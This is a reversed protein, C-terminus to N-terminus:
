KRKRKKNLYHNYKETKAANRKQLEEVIGEAIQELYTRCAIVSPTLNYIQEFAGEGLIVDFGLKIDEKLSDLDIINEKNELKELEAAKKFFKKINEDSTDFTFKLPGIEIPIGTQQTQIKIAM